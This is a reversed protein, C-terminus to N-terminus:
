KVIVKTVYNNIKVIYVGANVAIDSQTTANIKRGAIDFITVKDGASLGSVKIKGITSTVKFNSASIPKVASIGEAYAADLASITAGVNLETTQVEAETLAKRYLRFDYVLTKRLYNDSKYNSRGIWNFPTGLMNAKPLATSPLNTIAGTALSLGDIYITGTEGSQIYAFHHWSGKLAPTAYGVAQNGTAATYYGPTISVSQNILSGIVYGNQNTMQDDGNSFTWIFHGQGVLTTTDDQVRYYASMTYDKQNYMLKGIEPGLDLYGISDGLNLVKYQKTTGMVNIKADNKLKAAFHKEAGDYVTSDNVSANAFDHKVLLDNAFASGDNAAVTATFTKTVSQGGKLLTATLTTTYDYFDPRTVVGTADILKNNGTKWKITVTNDTAGATPLTLNATVHTLDGLNLNEFETNLEASIYDPNELYANNLKDLTAAIPEFGEYGLNIDDGSVPLSLVRFDYLLTQQLYADAAWGSRGLWNCITGQMSDKALAVSPMPMATNQAMQVGDVYVTGTAGNQTYTIHHWSGLTAAVGPNTATSPSAAASIGAAQANLRGYMFGNAYKGVDASNSFNWYYNGGAALNTYNENIRFYGMMTFSELSYIAKGIEKGMDFYGKGSGLDLVNIKETNGITRIRAENILKGKFGSAADTVRLTDNEMTINESTFNFTAVQEPTEVIGLVKATFTKSLNYVKGGVNQSLTATLTVSKNYMDPRTVQGLTDITAPKSSAWRATVGNTGLVTPLTLNATVASLDGLTLNTWQKNLEAMGNLTLIDTSSLARNYFRVDDITGNFGNIDQGWRSIGLYNNATTAGLSLSPNYPLSNASPTATYNTVDAGNLYIKAAATSTADDWSFTIAVHAWSGVPVKATSLVNYSTGTAPRFRLCMIQNDGNFSPVFALFNNTADAGNGLDFFRTANKLASFNVWTAYTFSTLGVNLDAPLSVYDAKALMNVGQGSYGEITTPAGVITGVKGNGSVDPVTTGSIADFDYHLILGTSIDQSFVSTSFLLGASLFCINFWKSMKFSYDKKKM